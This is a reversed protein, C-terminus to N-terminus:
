QAAERDKFRQLMAQYQKELRKRAKDLEKVGDQYEEELQQKAIEVPVVPGVMQLTSGAIDELMDAECGYQEVIPEHVYVCGDGFRVGEAITGDLLTLLFGFM